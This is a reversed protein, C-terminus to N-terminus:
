AAGPAGMMRSLEHGAAQVLPLWKRIAAPRFRETPGSIGASAIAKGHADFIPVAVGSIEERFEGRNVAWGQQRIKKLETKLAAPDELTHPTYRQHSDALFADAAAEDFALLLKGAATGHAPMRAGVVTHVRLLRASSQIEVYTVHENDLLALFATEGTDDRLRGLVPAAVQRLDSGTAVQSGLSWLKLSPRYRGSGEVPTAYGAAVLTQLVRHANSKVLGMAEAVETVGMPQPAQALLDLVRLGKLLTKDM